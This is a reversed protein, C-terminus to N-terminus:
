DDPEEEADPMEKFALQKQLMYYHKRGKKRSEHLIEEMQKSYIIEKNIMDIFSEWEYSDPSVGVFSFMFDFNTGHRFLRGPLPYHKRDGIMIGYRLYPTIAKHKEAKYSYTIADHTSIRGLKAEIIVRPKIKSEKKEYVIMDTEFRTPEMYSPIWEADYFEIEQSYPLKKLVDADIGGKCIEKKLKVCISETWENETMNVGIM